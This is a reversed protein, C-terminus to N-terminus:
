SGDDLNACKRIVDEIYRYDHVKLVDALKAPEAVERLSYDQNYLLEDSRTLVGKDKDILVM